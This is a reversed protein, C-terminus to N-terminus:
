WYQITSNQSVMVFFRELKSLVLEITQSLPSAM